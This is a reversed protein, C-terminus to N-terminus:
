APHRPLTVLFEAGPGPAAAVIRGGHAEIIRRAIAMGLGTGNTKTTFFPEFLRQRAQPSLGPGNDRVLAEVAPRNNWTVEQWTVEIRVPDACASLSNELLNRFVQGIAVRDVHCCLRTAASVQLLSAQRNRRSVQLQQWTEELLLCLDAQARELVVPAAFGRVREYLEHLHDQAKQIDDLLRQVDPNGSTKLALLDLCAQSRQLANRSEHALAALMEGIAALREAQRLKSEAEKRASIDHVFAYFRLPEQGRAQWITLEVPFEQGARRLAVFELRRNLVASEGTELYRRLGDAYDQRHVPPVILGALPHGLVEHRPWGFIAEAQANWDTILGDRDMGVFADFATEIIDRTRRQGERLAREAHQREAIEQRLNENTEALIATREHVRAELHDHAAQLAVAGRQRDAVLAGLTLATIATVGVFFGLDLLAQNSESVTAAERLAFPGHGRLTGVLALGAVLLTATATERQGLNYASWVLVPLFAFAFPHHTTAAQGIWGFVAQGLGVVVVALVTVKFPTEPSWNLRWQAQWLVLPPAVTVTSVADGLWWTLWTSGFHSWAVHGSLCLSAVGGTASLAAGVVAAFLAYLFVDRPHDFARRGNAWRNVLATAALSEVTNFLAIGCCAAAYAVSLDHQGNTINVLFAGALLGPWLQFGWILMAALAIGTPPWVPSASSHEFALALGLKGALFYILTFLANCALWQGTRPPQTM